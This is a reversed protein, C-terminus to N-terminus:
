GPIQLVSMCVIRDVSFESLPIAMVSALCVHANQVNHAQIRRQCRQVSGWAYDLGIVNSARSHLRFVNVGTGCGADLITESGKPAIFDVLERESLDEIEQERPSIGRDLEFDPVDERSKKEWVQRWKISNDM